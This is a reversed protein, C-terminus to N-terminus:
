NLNLGHVRTGLKTKYLTERAIAEKQTIYSPLTELLSYQSRNVSKPDNMIHEQLKKGVTQLNLMPKSVVLFVVNVM